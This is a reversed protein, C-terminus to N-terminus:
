KLPLQKKTDPPQTGSIKNAVSGSSTPPVTKAAAAAKQAALRDQQARLASGAPAPRNQVEPSNAKKVAADVSAQRQAQQVGGKVAQYEAEKSSAGGAKAAARAAQAARLEAMTPLRREFKTEEGSKPSVVVNPSGPKLNSASSQPQPKPPKDALVTKPDLNTDTKEVDKSPVSGRTARTTDGGRSGQGRRVINEGSEKESRLKEQAARLKQQAARIEAQREARQQGTFRGQEDLQEVEESLIEVQKEQTYVKSYAEMLSKATKGTLRKM